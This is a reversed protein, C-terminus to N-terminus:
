PCNIGNNEKPDYEIHIHDRAPNGPFYEPIVQYDDGLMEQIDNAIDQMQSDSVTNGRVDVAYGSYHLSNDKHKGDTGSTVVGESLSSNRKVAADIIPFAMKLRYSVNSIDAGTPGEKIRILGDIDLWNVPDNVVYGYLNSDGGAFRIPDKSTWRGTV